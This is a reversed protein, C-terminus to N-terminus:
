HGVTPTAARAVIPARAAALAFAAILLYCLMPVQFAISRSATIDAVYAFVLPVLAGGVIAMCLLGSVSAAPARSRELTLTFIVPFMIANFLGISIALVAAPQGAIQSVILCLVAAAGAVFLLLGSAPIRTLLGSGLFRGVMAGLWYLSVLKGAEVAALGLIDPQELFNVMTSGISVEAGVYLFITAAGLMAWKSRFAAGVSAASADAAPAAAAIRGRVSFLFIALLVIVGAIFYYALDIRGLSEVIKAETAEGGSFLGGQLLTHAAVYPGIVTGLSNFAQSLVLRFHSKESPGLVASLPNASVQLLTIGSAIVFLAVLVITYTRWHTAVPMLLCGVVMIALALIISRAAGLRSVVLAAPLSVVGYAMFFAFQTLFGQTDTLTFIEKVAPILVDNVSTVAGWIFFLTTIYIFALGQRPADAVM